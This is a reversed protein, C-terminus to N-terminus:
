QMYCSFNMYTREGLGYSSHRMNIIELQVHLTCACTEGFHDAPSEELEIASAQYPARVTRRRRRTCQADARLADAVRM